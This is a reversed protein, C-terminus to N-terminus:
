KSLAATGVYTKSYNYPEGGLEDVHNLTFNIQIIDPTSPKSLNKFELDTMTVRSNTLSTNEGSRNVYLVGDNLNFSITNNEIDVVELHTQNEGVGPSVVHAANRIAYTIAQMVQIAQANVENVAQGKIRASSVLNVFAGIGFVLTAVIAVYLSTELLTFGTNHNTKNKM